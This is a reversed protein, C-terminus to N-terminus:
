PNSHIHLCAYKFLSSQFIISVHVDLRIHPMLCYLVHHRSLSQNISVTMFKIEQFYVHLNKETYARIELSINLSDNGHLFTNNCLYPVLMSLLM